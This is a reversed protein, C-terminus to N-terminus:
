KSICQSYPPYRGVTSHLGVTEGLRHKHVPGSLAGVGCYFRWNFTLTVFALSFVESVPELYNMTFRGAKPASASALCVVSKIILTIYTTENGSEVYKM